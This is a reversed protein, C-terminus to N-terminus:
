ASAVNGDVQGVVAFNIGVNIQVDGAAFADSEVQWHQMRNMFASQDEAGIVIAHLKRSVSKAYGLRREAFAQPARGPCQIRHQKWQYTKVFLASPQSHSAPEVVPGKREAPYPWPQGRFQNTQGM